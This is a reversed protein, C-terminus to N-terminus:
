KLILFLLLHHNILVFKKWYISKKYKYEEQYYINSLNYIYKKLLLLIIM